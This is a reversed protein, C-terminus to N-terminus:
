SVPFLDSIDDPDLGFFEAYAQRDPKPQRLQRIRNMRLIDDLDNESAAQNSLIDRAAQGRLYRALPTETINGPLTDPKEGGEIIRFVPIESM